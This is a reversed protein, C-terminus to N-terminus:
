SRADGACARCRCSAARGRVQHAQHSSGDNFHYRGNRRMMSPRDPYRRASGSRFRTGRPQRMARVCSRQTSTSRRRVCGGEPEEKGSRGASVAGRAAATRPRAAMSTRKTSIRAGLDAPSKIATTTMSPAPVVVAEAAGTGGVSASSAFWAAASASAECRSSSSFTGGPAFGEGISGSPALGSKSLAGHGSDGLCTLRVLQHVTGPFGFRDEVPDLRVRRM